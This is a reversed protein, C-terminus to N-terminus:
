RSQHNRPHRVVYRLAPVAALLHAVGLQGATYGVNDGANAATGAITGGTGLLVIKSSMAQM